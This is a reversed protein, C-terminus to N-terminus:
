CPPKTREQSATLRAAMLLHERPLDASSASGLAQALGGCSRFSTSFYLQDRLPESCDGSFRNINSIPKSSAEKTSLCLNLKPAARRVGSLGHLLLQLGAGLGHRGLVTVCGLVLIVLPLVRSCPWPGQSPCPCRPAFRKRDPCGRAEMARLSLQVLTCTPLPTVVPCGSFRRGGVPRGLLSSLQRASSPHAKDLPGSCARSARWLRPAAVGPSVWPGQGLGGWGLLVGSTLCM